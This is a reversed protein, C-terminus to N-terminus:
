NEALRKKKEDLLVEDKEELETEKSELEEELESAYRPSWSSWCM